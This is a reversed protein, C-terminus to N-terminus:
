VSVDAITRRRELLEGMGYGAFAILLTLLEQSFPAPVVRFLAFGCAGCIMAVTAGRRSPKKLLIAMLVPVATVCIVLEYSIVFLGIINNFAYSLGMASMGVVLTLSQPLIVGGRRLAPFDFSLHSSVANLLSDATSIIALLVACAFLATITPNTLAQVTSMVVSAGAPVAIGQARALDGLYIPFLTAIVLLVASFAFALSVKRPSRGAFCRQGMDQGVMMFLMPMLLWGMWPIDQSNGVIQIVPAPESAGMFCALFTIGFVALIILGQVVDTYVVARLGGMVTYGIIVLWFALFLWIEDYGLAFFFKRAAVGQGALVLFLSVMSLLAGIRRMRPSGYVKEFVESITTLGRRRLSAGFGLAMLILGLGMGMPYLLGTWGRQFAEESAGIITGGGLQTALITMTLAFLGISRGGLFYDERTKQGQSARKGIVLFVVGLVGLLAVFLPTNM